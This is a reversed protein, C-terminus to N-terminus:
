GHEDRLRALGAHQRRLVTRDSVGLARAAEDRSLGVFTRLVIVDRLPAPLEEVAAALRAAASGGSATPAGLQAPRSLAQDVVRAATRYAEPDFGACADAGVQAVVATALEDARAVGCVPALRARVYRRVATDVGAGRPTGNM